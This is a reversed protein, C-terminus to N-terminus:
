KSFFCEIFSSDRLRFGFYPAVEGWYCMGTFIHVDEDRVFFSLTQNGTSYSAAVHLLTGNPRELAHESIIKLNAQEPPTVFEISSLITAEQKMEVQLQQVTVKM